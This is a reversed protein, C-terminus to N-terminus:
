PWLQEWLRNFMSPSPRLKISLAVGLLIAPIVSMVVLALKVRQFYAVLMLLIAVVALGLGNALGSM